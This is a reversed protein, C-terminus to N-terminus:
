VGREGGGAPAKRDGDPEAHDPCPPGQALLRRRIQPFQSQALTARAENFRGWLEPM